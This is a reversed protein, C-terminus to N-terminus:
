ARTWSIGPRPMQCVLELCRMIQWHKPLNCCTPREWAGFYACRNVCPFIPFVYFILFVCKRIQRAVSRTMWRLVWWLTDALLGPDSSLPYLLPFIVRNHCSLSASTSLFQMIQESNTLSEIWYRDGGSMTLFLCLEGESLIDSSVFGLESRRWDM